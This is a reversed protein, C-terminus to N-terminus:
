TESYQVVLPIRTLRVGDFLVDYHYVGPEFVELEVPVPCTAAPTRETFQIDRSVAGGARGNPYVGQLTLRHTGRQNGAHLFVVALLEVRADPRLGLPDDELGAEGPPEVAVGHVLGRIDATGDPRPEFGHCLVALGVFPGDAFAAM